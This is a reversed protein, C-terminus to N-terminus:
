SRGGKGRPGVPSEPSSRFGDSARGRHCCDVRHPLVRVRSRVLGRARRRDIRLDHRWSPIRRVDEFLIAHIQSTQTLLRGLDGHPPSLAPCAPPTLSDYGTAEVCVGSSSGVPAKTGPRATLCRMPATDASTSERWSRPAGASSSRRCPRHMLRVSCPPSRGENRRAVSTTM